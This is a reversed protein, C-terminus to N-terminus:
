QLPELQLSERFFSDLKTYFSTTSKLYHFGHGEDELLMSDYNIDHADLIKKIRNFHEQDVVKDKKGQAIFIPIKVRHAQYVPSYEMLTDIDTDPDGIIKEIFNNRREDGTLDNNSFLLPLDTVGAYSAACKFLDPRNIASILASYGGYSIGYICIKSPEVLKQNIVEEVSSYIDNEILRGWQRMGQNEFKKGYGSSGRYNPQLVAYGLTALYQTHANFHRTDRISIPGGHPLVILPPRTTGDSTPLTLYSEIIQGDISTSKIIQTESLKFEKLWPAISAFKILENSKRNLLHYSGPDTASSTQVVAITKDQNFDVIYAKSEEVSLELEGKLVAEVEMLYEHKHFGSEIFSVGLIGDKNPSIIASNIDTNPHGYIKDLYRKEPISYRYLSVFNDKENSLVHLIKGNESILVPTFTIDEPGEWIIEWKRGNPRRAWIENKSDAKNLSYGISLRGKANTLWYPTDPGRRNLRFEKRLQRHFNKESIDIKYIGTKENRWKAILFQNESDPLPDVLFANELFRKNEVSVVQSSKFTLKSLFLDWGKGKTFTDSLISNDDIWNFDIVELSDNTAYQLILKEKFSKTNLLSIQITEGSNRMIAVNEGNPSVKIKTVQSAKFFKKAIELTKEPSAKSDEPLGALVLSSMLVSLTFLLEKM